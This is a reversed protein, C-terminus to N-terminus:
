ISMEFYCKCILPINEKNEVWRRVEEKTYGYSSCCDYIENMSLDKFDVELEYMEQKPEREEDDALAIGDPNVRNERFIYKKNPIIEKYAQFNDIDTVVWGCLNYMLNIVSQTNKEFFYQKLFKLDKTKSTDIYDALNGQKKLILKRDDNLKKQFNNPLLFIDRDDNIWISGKYSDKNIEDCNDLGLNYLSDYIKDLILHNYDDMVNSDNIISLVIDDRMYDIKIKSLISVNAKDAWYNILEVIPPVLNEKRLTKLVKKREILGNLHLLLNTRPTKYFWIIHTINPPFKFRKNNIHKIKFKRLNCKKGDSMLFYGLEDEVLDGRIAQIFNSKTMKIGLSPIEEILNIEM